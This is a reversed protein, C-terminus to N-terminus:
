IVFDINLLVKHLKPLEEVSPIGFRLANREDCLRVYIGQQCLQEFVAPANKLYVTQFLSTGAPEQKFIHQLLQSLSDTLQRLETLQQQHWSKDQLALETIFQAPGNVEWPNALEALKNLWTQHASLFGLRIGALGFFKGISRLVFLHANATLNILSQTPIIVDM